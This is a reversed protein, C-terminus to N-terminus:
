WPWMYMQPAGKLFAFCECFTNHVYINLLTKLINRSNVRIGKTHNVRWSQVLYFMNSKRKQKIRTQNETQEVKKQKSSNQHKM